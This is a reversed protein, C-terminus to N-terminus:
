SDTKSAARSSSTKEEWRRSWYPPGPRDTTMGLVGICKWMGISSSGGSNRENRLTTLGTAEGAATALTSSMITFHVVQNTSSSISAPSASRAWTIPTGAMQVM